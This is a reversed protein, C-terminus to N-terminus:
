AVEEPIARHVTPMLNAMRQPGRPTPDDDAPREVAAEGNSRRANAARRELDARLQWGLLFGGAAATLISLTADIAM